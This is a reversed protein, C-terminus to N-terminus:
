CACVITAMRVVGVPEVIKDSLSTIVVLHLSFLRVGCWVNISLPSSKKSNNSYTVPTKNKQVVIRKSLIEVSASPSHPLKSM